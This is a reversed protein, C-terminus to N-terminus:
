EEKLPVAPEYGLVERVGTGPAPPGVIGKEEMTDVLRAANECTM